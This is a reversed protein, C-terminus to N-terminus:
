VKCVKAMIQKAVTELDKELIQNLKEKEQELNKKEEKIYKSIESRVKDVFNQRNETAQKVRIELLGRAKTVATNIQHEYEEKLNELKQATASINDEMSKMYERRAIINKIVPKFLYTNLIILLIFFNIIQLIFTGDFHIM